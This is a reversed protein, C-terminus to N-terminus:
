ARKRKRTAAKKPGNRVRKRTWITQMTEAFAAVALYEARYKGLTKIDGGGDVVSDYQTTTVNRRGAGEPAYYKKYNEEIQERFERVTGDFCGARVTVGSESIDINVDRESVGIPNLTIVKDM